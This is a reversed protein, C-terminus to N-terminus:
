RLFNLSRIEKSLLNEFYPNMLKAAILGIKGAPPHYSFVVKLLTSGDGQEQFTVRGVRQVFSGPTASWGILRGPEDKVIEADWELSFLKGLLNSKWHSVQGDIVDVDVVHKLSGPLNELNRWYAYLESAPKNILFEGRVNVAKPSSADIGLQEYFLCKGTAGRYTLYAGYIFPSKFPRTISRSLLVGGLFVSFLRESIGLNKAPQKELSIHGSRGHLHHHKLEM